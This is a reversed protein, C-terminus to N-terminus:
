EFGLKTDYGQLDSFFGAIAGDPKQGQKTGIEVIIDRLRQLKESDFGM